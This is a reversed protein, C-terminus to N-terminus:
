VLHKWFHEVLQRGLTAVPLVGQNLVWNESASESEVCETESADANESEERDETLSDEVRSMSSHVMPETRGALLGRVLEAGLGRSLHAVSASAGALAVLSSLPLPRRSAICMLVTSAFCAAFRDAFGGHDLMGHDSAAQGLEQFLRISTDVM